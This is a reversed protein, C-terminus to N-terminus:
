RDSNDTLELGQYLSPILDTNGHPSSPSPNLPDPEDTPAQSTPSPPTPGPGPPPRPSQDAPPDANLDISLAPKPRSDSPLAPNLTHSNYTPGLGQYPSLNLDTNGHPVSSGPNLPDHEDTPVQSTPSSSTFGLGPPPRPSQDEPPDANLDISLAPKPRSESPSALNLAHSNDTPGLGQYPSPSLGTNSHPASPEPNLPDHEVTPAQSTLSPFTSGLGPPPRPSQDEPPNANLDISPAPKLPEAEPLGDSDIVTRLNNQRPEQERWHGSDPSRLTPPANARDAANALWKDSPDQRLPSTAIGDKAADVVSVRVEHERVAVPAALAFDIVSLMLLVRALTKYWRMKTPYTVDVSHPSESHEIFNFLLSATWFFRFALQSNSFTM